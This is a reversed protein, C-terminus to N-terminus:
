LLLRWLEILFRILFLYIFILHIPRDTHSNGRGGAQFVTVFLNMLLNFVPNPELIHLIINIKLILKNLFEHILFFRTLFFLVM